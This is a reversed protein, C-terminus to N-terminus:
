GVLGYGRAMAAAAFVMLVLLLAEIHSLMAIRRATAPHAFSEPTAAGRLALRWRILTLMPWSELVLILVFLAMKMFFLHNALYYGAPKELGGLLRWLGTAIWLLAAAGWLSDAKFARRLSPTTVPERLTNGRTLVAGMGLGLAILHLSAIVVRLM